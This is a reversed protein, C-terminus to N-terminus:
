HTPQNNCYVHYRYLKPNRGTPYQLIRPTFASFGVPSGLLRFGTTLEAPLPPGLVDLDNPKTSYQSITDTISIALTPNLHFLDPIPSHGSTSTLIRTKMPNVFCGLPASIIAFQNCLFQLDALPVCVSVDDVYGLLHTIGGFGDNGPNGNLLQTTTRKPLEIDLPQILNAVVFSAFIPSLPCGQSVGEEMLLTRWTGNACKHHVTGTHKYFLTTLSLMEPFSKAIVNFFAEHSVSNFQNTLDFFVAVHTPIRGTLQPLSIYREVQLQMTNIILNTGNPTGVAYNFPLM